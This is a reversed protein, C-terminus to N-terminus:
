QHPPPYNPHARKRDETERQIAEIKNLLYTEYRGERLAAVNEELLANQIKTVKLANDDHLTPLTNSSLHRLFKELILHERLLERM